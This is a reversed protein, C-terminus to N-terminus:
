GTKRDVWQPACAKIWRKDVNVFLYYVGNENRIVPCEMLDFYDPTDLPEQISWSQNQDRFVSVAICGTVTEDKKQATIFAYWQGMKDDWHLWPDRWTTTGDTVHYPHYITLDCVMLPNGPDAIWLYLDKSYFCGIRQITGNEQTSRGTILMMYDGAPTLAVSGTWNALDQWSGCAGRDIAVGRYWWTILDKSVSHGVSAKNHRREPDDIERPAQLYFAHYMGREDQIIWFDWTVFQSPALLM